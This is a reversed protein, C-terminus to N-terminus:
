GERVYCSRVKTPVVIKAAPMDPAKKRALLRDLALDAMQAASWVVAPQVEGAGFAPRYYRDYIDERTWSVMRFDRGPRLGLEAAACVTSLAVQSWLALIGDPRDRRTLLERAAKEARLMNCEAIPELQGGARELESRAGALREISHVSDWKQGLWAIRRCGLDLLHRAALAGGTFNDQVVADVRLNAFYWDVVVTPKGIDAIARVLEQIEGALHPQVHCLIVGSARASDLERLVAARDLGDSAMALLPHGRRRAADQFPALHESEREGESSDQSAQLDLFAIPCGRDPDCAGPAVRFGRHAECILLGESELARLARHVTKPTVGHIKALKRVAPLYSTASFEGSLLRARLEDRVRDGALARRRMTKEKSIHDRAYGCQRRVTNMNIEFFESVVARRSTNSRENTVRVVDIGSVGKIHIPFRQPEEVALPM